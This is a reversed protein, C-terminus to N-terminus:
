ATTRSLSVRWLGIRVEVDAAQAAPQRADTDIVSLVRPSALAPLATPRSRRTGGAAGDLWRNVQAWSLRCARAISSRSVGASVAAVVQAQLERPIRRGKANAGRFAAFAAVLHHLHKTRATSSLPPPESRRM